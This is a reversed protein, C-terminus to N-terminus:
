RFSTRFVEFSGDANGPGTPDLDGKSVVLLTRGDGTFGAYRSEQASQTVQVIKLRKNTRTVFVEQSGDANHGPVLDDQSAFAVYKGAADFGGFVPAHAGFSIRKAKKPKKSLKLLWLDDHANTGGAALDGSSVIAALGNKQNAFRVLHSDGVSNTQQRVLEKVFDITFVEVSGDENDRALNGNSEVAVLTSHPVFGAFDLTAGAPAQGEFVVTNTRRDFIQIAPPGADVLTTEFALWRGTPDQGAYKTDRTSNTAQRLLLTDLDLLYIETSHDANGPAGPTLDGRSELVGCREPACIARILSQYTSNTLQAVTSTGIDYSFVENSGDANGPSAPALDGKSGFFARNGDDWFTQFFSDEASSTMQLLPMTGIATDPTYLWAEFSGDANGPAGPTLDGRSSVVVRGEMTVRASSSSAASNTAQVLDGTRLDLVYVETSGDTNGPGGPTLDGASRLAAVNSGPPGLRDVFTDAGSHTLQEPEALASAALGAVALQQLILSRKM